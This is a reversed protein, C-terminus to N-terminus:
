TLDSEAARQVWSAFKEAEVRDAVYRRVVREVYDAVETAPLKHGRLKRGFSTDLGLSGGLHVQFGEVQNSNADTVIMGKLGIDAVQIRACSNPCGNFHVTIPHELQDEIDTLRQEVETIVTAARAKTEVIGYKCFEIGTCAMTSRRWPTPRSPFGLTYLDSQLSGIHEDPVDLVVLKQMPTIRVRRSGAAEAADALNILMTGGVRGVVPAIGVAHLGNKQRQIGVHDRPEDLPEPAPGDAMPRGLYEQELVNRFKEVGWDAVLFKLRAKARLRRYGHDRFLSVIGIWVDPVDELPVWAGLREGIRPNTSLGGGVWVDLGPGFDPHEVGIFAVDNIEHVVDQLGSIATKFKRPLNSYEPNAILRRTIEHVAPTADLVEDAAIGAMPSGLVVRPTDGASEATTLGVGELRRWIEPLDEVRIWHLQVNQRDTLDATDRAFQRSVEGVVRLQETTLAGGDIRIRLMFHEDELEEPTLTATRGGDIGPARQTYLGWWRFRSRRDTPDIGAVGTHCYVEEIRKRVNLGDDDQKVKENVNLPEREGQAWQGEKRLPKVATPRTRPTTM